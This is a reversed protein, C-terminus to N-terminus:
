FSWQSPTCVISARLLRRDDQNTQDVAFGFNRRPRYPPKDERNATRHALTRRPVVLRHVEPASFGSRILAKVAPLLLRQEVLNALDNDSHIESM